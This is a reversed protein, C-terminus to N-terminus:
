NSFQPRNLARESTPLKIWYGGGSGSKSHVTERLALPLHDRLIRGVEKVRCGPLKRLEETPVFNSHADFLKKYISFARADGVQITNGDLIVTHTDSQLELRGAYAAPRSDRRDEVIRVDVTRTTYVPHGPDNV